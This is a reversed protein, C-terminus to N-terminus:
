EYQMMNDGFLEGLTPHAYIIEKLAAVTMGGAMAISAYHIIDAAHPGMIHCGILKDESDVLTKIFGLTEGMAQAKGNSSFLTKETKFVLGQDKAAEESMGITGIEPSTFVCAPIAKNVVARGKLLHAMLQRGQDYAAHALLSIGNLDGIAYINQVSTQFSGDVQVFKGNHQVGLEDMTDADFRGTRGVAMLAYDAPCEQVGKKDEYLTIIGEEMNKFGTVKCGTLIQIGKKAAVSKLRKGIASDIAPLLNRAYEIITVQVGFDNLLVGFEMGIVGGGIITISKPLSELGLLEKSTILRDNDIGEVPLIFPKSGTALVLADGHVVQREGTNM